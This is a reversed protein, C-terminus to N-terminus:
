DELREIEVQAGMALLAERWATEAAAQERAHAPRPLLLVRVQSAAMVPAQADPFSARIAAANLTGAYASAQGTHEMLDSVLLIRLPAHSAAMQGMDPVSAAVAASIPSSPATGPTLLAALDRELPARFADEYRARVLKPNEYLPNAESGPNCLPLGLRLQARQGDPANEIVAIRIQAGQPLADRAALIERRVAEIQPPTLPDSKDIVIATAGAIGTLPCLTEHDFRPESLRSAAYFAAAAASIAFLGLFAGIIAKLNM